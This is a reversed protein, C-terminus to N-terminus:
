ALQHSRTVHATHQESQWLLAALAIMVLGVLLWVVQPWAGLGIMAIEVTLYGVTICGAVASALADFQRPGYGAIVAAALASGAVAIGLLLAPVTFDTFPTGNLVSVPINMFGVALGVAGVVASLAEFLDIAVVTIRVRKESM